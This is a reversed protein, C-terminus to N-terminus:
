RTGPCAWPKPIPQQHIVGGLQRAIGLPSLLGEFIKVRPHPWKRRPRAWERTEITWKRLQQNENANYHSATFLDLWALKETVNSAKAIREKAASKKFIISASRVCNQHLICFNPLPDRTINLVQSLSPMCHRSNGSGGRRRHRCGFERMLLDGHPRILFPALAAPRASRIPLIPESASASNRESIFRM